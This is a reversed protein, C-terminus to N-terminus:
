AAGGEEALFRDLDLPQPEAGAWDTAPESTAGTLIVRILFRSARRNREKEDQLDPFLIGGIAQIHTDPDGPGRLVVLAEGIRRDLDAGPAPVHAGFVGLFRDPTTLAQPGKHAIWGEGGMKARGPATRPKRPCECPDYHGRGGDACGKAGERAQLLASFRSLSRTQTVAPLKETLQAAERFTPLPDLNALAQFVGEAAQGSPSHVYARLIAGARVKPDPQGKAPTNSPTLNYRM